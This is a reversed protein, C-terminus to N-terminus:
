LMSTVAAKTPIVSRRLRVLSTSSRRTVKSATSKASVKRRRATSTASSSTTMTRSRRASNSGRRRSRRATDAGIGDRFLIKVDTMRDDFCGRDRRSRARPSCSSESIWILILRRDSTRGFGERAVGRRAARRVDLDFMARSRVCAGPLTSSSSPARVAASWPTSTTRRSIPPSRMRPLRSRSRPSPASPSSPPSCSSHRARPRANLRARTRRTPTHRSIEDVISRHTNRRERCEVHCKWIRSDQVTSSDIRPCARRRALAALRSPFPRFRDSVTPFASNRDVDNFM